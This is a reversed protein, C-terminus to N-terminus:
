NLMSKQAKIERWKKVIQAAIPAAEKGYSGYRLYVVVILEPNEFKANVDQEFAIGGFWVHTYLNTGEHEDLDIREMSESTSTKGILQNKLDVYDSIAEPYNAYLRSLSWLSKSQTYLVVKRLGELLINRISDPFDIRRKVEPETRMVQNKKTEKSLSSFLPFDMGILSYAEQFPFTTKPHILSANEEKIGGAIAHVIQPKIIAGKNAMAALMISTQLPTVVLSHQGIAMAYLGNRNTALDDPVKGAIEGPLDIGTKVGLAFKKAANALDIPEKIVDSALLSFYVNSSTEIAKIIDMQGLNYVRSRPIRGGKYIQPIPKGESNLGVQIKSGIKFVKDEMNLPNLQSITKLEEKSDHLKQILAEYATVLKFISGQTAAQRFAQSRGYGFGYAPYFASALHKELPQAKGKALREYSGKLPRTLDQYSRFTNLYELAEEKTFNELAIQLKRKKLNPELGAKVLETFNQLELSSQHSTLVLLTIYLGKRKWFESFLENEKEDLYDVYPKPYHKNIKELNRKEKLFNKENKSRWTRFVQHHFIQKSAEKVKEQFALFQSALDRYAGLTQKGVKKLLHPSFKSHDVAVQCLDILLLKNYVSQINPMLSSFLEQQEKLLTKIELGSQEEADVAQQIAVAQEITGHSQFWKIIAHNEPLILDLYAEWTLWLKDEYFKKERKDYLERELPQSMNWIGGLHAENEFWRNIRRMKEKNEESNGSHIFDNPDFRPWSALTLIEGTKPDLAVIAGGKIWPQKENTAIKGHGSIKATRIKENQALLEEAYSQLDLSINLLVRKGSLPDKSGPFEKLFHGKSDAAYSKKGRFGRLEKEFLGEIGSKGVYDYVTYALEELTRVRKEVEYFSAFGEPLSPEEHEEWQRLVEKLTKVERLILEYEEKSIAGMYGIVDSAIRKNPYERKSIRLAQVGAWDKELMKLRYYEKESIEEKIVYPLNFFLAAKSYILDEVRSADLDLEEALLNALKAIYEKRPHSLIKKGSSTIWRSTPIERIPSYLIAAQYSVRNIALPNNFRDRITGRRSPEVIVKRQPKRSEELKDEYQVTSLHLSRLGVILFGILILNLILNTKSTIIDPDHSVPRTRRNRPHKPKGFFANFLM